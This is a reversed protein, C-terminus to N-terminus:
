GFFESSHHFDHDPHRSIGVRPAQGSRLSLPWPDIEQSTCPYESTRPVYLPQKAWSSRAVDGSPRTHHAGQAGPPKVTGSGQTHQYTCPDWGSAFTSIFIPVGGIRVPRAPMVRKGTRPLVFVSPSPRGSAAYPFETWRGDTANLESVDTTTPLVPEQSEDDWCPIFRSGEPLLDVGSGTLPSGCRFDFLDQV